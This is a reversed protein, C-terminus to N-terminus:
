CNIDLPLLPPDLFTKSLKEELCGDNRSFRFSEDRLMNCVNCKVARTGIVRVGREELARYLDVLPLFFM